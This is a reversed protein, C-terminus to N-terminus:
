FTLVDYINGCICIGCDCEGSAVIRGVKAGYEAYSVAVGPENAGVDVMEFGRTEELYKKIEAKLEIGAHDSGIAVKM